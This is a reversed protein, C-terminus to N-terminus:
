HTYSCVLKTTFPSTGSSGRDDRLDNRDVLSRGPWYRFSCCMGCIHLQKCHDTTRHSSTNRTKSQCQNETDTWQSTTSTIDRFQHFIFAYCYSSNMHSRDFSVMVLSKRHGQLANWSCSMNWLQSIYSMKIVIYKWILLLDTVSHSKQSNYGLQPVSWPWLQWKLFHCQKRCHNIYLQNRATEETNLSLLKVYTLNVNWGWWKLKRCVINYFAMNAIIQTALDQKLSHSHVTM